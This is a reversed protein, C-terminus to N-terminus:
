ADHRRITVSYVVGSGSSADVGFDGHAAFGGYSWASVEFTRSLGSLVLSIAGQGESYDLETMGVQKCFARFHMAVANPSASKNLFRYTRTSPGEEYADPTSGKLPLLCFGWAEVVGTPVLSSIRKKAHEAMFTLLPAAFPAKETTCSVTLLIDDKELTLSFTHWDISRGITRFSAARTIAEYHNLM